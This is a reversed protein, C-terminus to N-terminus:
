VRPSSVALKAWMTPPANLALSAMCLMEGVIVHALAGVWIAERAVAAMALVLISAWM